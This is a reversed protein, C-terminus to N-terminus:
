FLDVMFETVSRLLPLMRHCHGWKTSQLLYIGHQRADTWYYIVPSTLIHYSCFFPVRLSLQTHWLHSRNIFLRVAVHFRNTECLLSVVVAKRLEFDKMMVRFGAKTWNKDESNGQSGFLKSTAKFVASTSLIRESFTRDRDVNFAMRNSNQIFPASEWILKVYYRLCRIAAICNATLKLSSYKARQQQM